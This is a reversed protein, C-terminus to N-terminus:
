YPCLYNKRLAESQVNLKEAVEAATKALAGGEFLIWPAELNEPTLCVIGFKTQGLEKAIIEYWQSGSRIDKSSLFPKVRLVMKLCRALEHAVGESRDGSWSLFVKMPM